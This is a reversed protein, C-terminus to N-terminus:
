YPESKTAFANKRHCHTLFIIRVYIYIYIFVNPITRIEISYGKTESKKENLEKKNIKKVYNGHFNLMNKYVYINYKLKM